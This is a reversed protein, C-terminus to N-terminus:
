GRRPSISCGPISPWAPLLMITGWAILFFVLTQANRRARSHFAAKMSTVTLNQRIPGSPTSGEPGDHAEKVEARGVSRDHRHHRRRHRHRRRNLRRRHHHRRRSPRRRRPHRRRRSPRRRHRRRRNLRRHHHHRGRPPHRRHRRSLRRRRLRPLRRRHRHSLRRHRIVRTAWLRLHHHRHRRHHRLSPRLHHHRRRRHHHRRSRRRPHLLHPRHRRRPHRRHRRRISSIVPTRSPSPRRLRAPLSGRLVGRRLAPGPHHLHRGNPRFPDHLLRAPHRLFQHVDGGGRLRRPRGRRGPGRGPLAVASVRAGARPETRTPLFFGARISSSTRARAMCAALGGMANTVNPATPDNTDRGSATPPGVYLSDLVLVHNPDVYASNYWVHTIIVAGLTGSFDVGVARASNYAANLGIRIADPPLQRTATNAAERAAMAMVQQRLIMFSYDFIAMMMILFIPLIFAFEVFAQSKCRRRRERVRYFLSPQKM